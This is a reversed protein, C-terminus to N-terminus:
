AGVSVPNENVDKNVMNVVKRYRKYKKVSHLVIGRLLLQLEDSTLTISAANTRIAPLEFVGEELRKSYLGFGDGEWHLLKVQDGRRSIFIFIAGSLPDKKMHDRVLGSLTAAGKRMDAAHRYLYYQYFSPLSLM